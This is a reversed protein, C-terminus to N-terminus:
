KSKPCVISSCRKLEIILEFDRLQSSSSSSSSPLHQHLTSHFVDRWSQGYHRPKTIWWVTWVKRGTNSFIMMLLFPLSLEWWSLFREGSSHDALSIKVSKCHGYGRLTCASRFWALLKGCCWLLAVAKKKGKVRPLAMSRPWVSLM